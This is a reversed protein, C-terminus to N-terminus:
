TSSNRMVRLNFVPFQTFWGRALSTISNQRSCAVIALFFLRFFGGGFFFIAGIGDSNSQGKQRFKAETSHVM